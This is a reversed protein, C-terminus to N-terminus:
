KSKEKLEYLFEGIIGGLHNILNELSEMRREIRYLIWVLAALIVITIIDTM